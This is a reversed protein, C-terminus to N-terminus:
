VLGLFICENEVSGRRHVSISPTYQSCQCPFMVPLDLAIPGTKPVLTRAGYEKSRCTLDGKDTSQIHLFVSDM